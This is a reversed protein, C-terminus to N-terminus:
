APARRLRGIGYAATGGFLGTALLDLDKGVIEAALPALGFGFALALWDATVRAGAVLSLTFFVPTLFLLGAAVPAPMAGVLHYGLLTMVMCVLLLTNVFGLYYPLREQQPMPPLRRSAEVWVTVAVYHAVLLQMAWGRGAGGEPGRVLPLISMTMPLLRISSLAVAIALFPLATGAALGGFFIVQAPGAWMILTSLVAAGPPFGVERALSGVAFLSLGVVWAPFSLADVFGRLVLDRTSQSATQM